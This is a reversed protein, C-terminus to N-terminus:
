GAKLAAAKIIAAGMVIKYMTKWRKRISPIVAPALLPYFFSV